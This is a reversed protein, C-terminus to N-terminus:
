KPDSCDGTRKGELDINMAFGDGMFKIAGKFGDATRTVEGRGTMSQQGTCVVNWTATDGTMKFDSNTCGDRSVGPPTKWERAACVQSSQPPMNMPMGPMSMQTTIQWLDGPVQARAGPSDALLPALVLGVFVTAAFRGGGLRLM